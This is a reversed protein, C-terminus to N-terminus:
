RTATQLAYLRNIVTSDWVMHYRDPAFWPAPRGHQCGCSSGPYTRLSTAAHWLEVHLPWRGTGRNRWCGGTRAAKEEKLANHFSHGETAMGHYTWQVM